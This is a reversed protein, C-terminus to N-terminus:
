GSEEQKVSVKDLARLVSAPTGELGHAPLPVGEENGQSVKPPDMGGLWWAECYPIRKKSKNLSPSCLKESGWVDTRSAM